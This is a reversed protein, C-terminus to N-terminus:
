TEIAQNGSPRIMARRTPWREVNHRNAGVGFYLRQDPFLIRAMHKLLHLKARSPQGSLDGDRLLPRPSSAKWDPTTPLPGDNPLLRMASEWGGSLAWQRISNEDRRGHLRQVHAPTAAPAVVFKISDGSIKGQFM